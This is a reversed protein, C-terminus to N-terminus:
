VSEVHVHVNSGVVVVVVVVVVTRVRTCCMRVPAVSVETRAASAMAATRCWMPPHPHNSALKIIICTSLVNNRIWNVGNGRCVNQGIVFRKKVVCFLAALRRHRRRRRRALLPLLQLRPQLLRLRGDLLAVVGPANKTKRHREKLERGQTHKHKHTCSACAGPVWSRSGDCLVM